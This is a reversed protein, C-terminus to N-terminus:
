ASVEGRTPATTSRSDGDGKLKGEAKRKSLKELNKEAVEDLPVGLEFACQSIYWLADGLERIMDDHSVSKDRIHKKLKEAFEGTEGCLGLTTYILNNGRDPYVATEGAKEQYENLTM